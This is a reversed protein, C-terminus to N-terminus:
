GRIMSFDSVPAFGLTCNERDSAPSNCSTNGTLRCLHCGLVKLSKEAVLSPASHSGFRHAMLHLTKAADRHSSQLDPRESWEGAARAILDFRHDM